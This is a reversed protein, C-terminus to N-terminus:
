QKENLIDVKRGIQAIISNYMLVCLNLLTINMILDVYHYKPIFNNYIGLILTHNQLCIRIANGEVSNSLVILLIVKIGNYKIVNPLFFM